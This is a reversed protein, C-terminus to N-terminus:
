TREDDGGPGAPSARRRALLRALAGAVVWWWALDVMVAAAVAWADRLPLRIALLLLHPPNLLLFAGFCGLSAPSLSPGHETGSPMASAGAAVLGASVLAGAAAIAIRLRKGQM